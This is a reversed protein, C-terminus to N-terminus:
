PLKVINGRLGVEATVMGASCVYDTESSVEEDHYLSRINVVANGGEASAREQLAILTALFTSDCASKDSKLAGNMLKKATYESLAQGTKAYAQTGWYLKIAPNLKAQADASSLADAISLKIRDDRASVGQSVLLAVFASMLKKTHIRNM